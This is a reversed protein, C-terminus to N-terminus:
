KIITETPNQAFNEDLIEFSVKVKIQSGQRLMEYLDDSPYFTDMHTVAFPWGDDFILVQEVYSINTNKNEGSVIPLLVWETEFM